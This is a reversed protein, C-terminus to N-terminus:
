CACNRSFAPSFIRSTMANSQSCRSSTTTPTPRRKVGEYFWQAIRSTVDRPPLYLLTLYRSSDFHRDGEFRLRREEDLLHTLPEPWSTRPYSADRRRHSDAYVAWGGTLRKLTNNIQATTVLLESDTASDLDPGRFQFTTQFSGNKNFVHRSRGTAGV